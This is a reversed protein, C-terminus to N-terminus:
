SSQTSAEDVRVSSEQESASTEGSGVRSYLVKLVNLVVIDRRKRAKPPPNVFLYYREEGQLERIIRETIVKVPDIHVRRKIDEFSKFPEREREDLIKMMTKKGIGPLLELTHFRINIPQAVNFFEVFVREKRKIIEPVIEELKTRAYPSLEEYDILVTSCEKVSSNEGELWIRSGVAIEVDERPLAEMLTFYEDGVLQLYDQERHERHRDEPNPPRFDLVYATREPPKRCRHRHPRRGRPRWERRTEM